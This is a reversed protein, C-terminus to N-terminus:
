CSLEQCPKGARTHEATARAMHVRKWASGYGGEELTKSGDIVATSFLIVKEKGESKGLTIAGSHESQLETPWRPM